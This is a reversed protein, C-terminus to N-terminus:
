NDTYQFRKPGVSLAFQSPTAVDTRVFYCLKADFKIPEANYQWETLLTSDLGVKIQM